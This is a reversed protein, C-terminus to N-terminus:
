EFSNPLLANIATEKMAAMKAGCVEYSISKKEEIKYRLM